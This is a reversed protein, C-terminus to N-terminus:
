VEKNEGFILQYGTPGASIVYPVSSPIDLRDGVQLHRTTSGYVVTLMGDTVLLAVPSLAEPFSQVVDPSGVLESVSSFGEKELTQIGRESFEM